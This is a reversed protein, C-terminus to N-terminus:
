AIQDICLAQLYHKFNAICVPEGNKILLYLRHATLLNLVHAARGRPYLCLGDVNQLCQRAEKFCQTTPGGPSTSNGRNSIKWIKVLCYKAFSSCQM